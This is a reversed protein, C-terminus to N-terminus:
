RRRERDVILLIGLATLAAGALLHAPHFFDTWGFDAVFHEAWQRVATFAAAAVLLAIAGVGVARGRDHRLSVAAVVGAALGLWPQVVIGAALGVLVAITVTRRIAVPPGTVFPDDMLVPGPGVLAPQRRRGRWGGIIIGLCSLVGLGSVGLGAWVIEQPTWQLKVDVFGDRGPRVVWGNAYGDVIVPEGIDTGNVTARWGETHSQGLVLWVPQGARGQVRLDFSTRGARRVDVSANAAGEPQATAPRRDTSLVLRDLDLGSAAGVATRVIHSGAALQLRRSSDCLQLALSRVGLPDPTGVVRVPVDNGDISLVNRRCTDIPAGARAGQAGPLGLESIAIPMAIPKKTFWDTREVSRVRDFTIRFTRGSLPEFRLAAGGPPVDVSRAPGGDAQITVRTPVSHEGDDVPRLALQDITVPAPTTVELWAGEQPGLHNTWMTKPDGDVASSARMDLDGPLRGSANVVLGPVGGLTADLKADDQSANIRADGSLTFTRAAPLTFRRVIRREEDRAFPELASARLRSMVIDLPNTRAANAGVRRLLAGPMKVVEDLRVGPIRVEALGVGNQDAYGHQRGVNDKEIVLELTRFTRRGGLDVHQGEPRFSDDTLDVSVVKRGDLVVGLRTITRSGNFAQVLDIGSTTVPSTTEVLLRQGGVPGFTGVSWATALDGDFANAPRDGPSYSITNGYATAEVRKVGRQEVTTQDDMTEDPFTPMRNDQSDVRLPKEDVRETYGENDRVTGWRRARKRNTDTLVLRAGRAVADDLVSPRGAIGPGSLLVSGGGLLDAAAADVVGEGDGELVIPRVASRVRVIPLPDRVPVVGVPPRVMSSREAFYVEDHMPLKPSAKNERRPGFTVPTGFGRLGPSFLGWVQSPRATRYREYELDGRLVVDGVGMLRAVPSIATPDLIGEQIRHDLAILLDASPETGFPILERAVWPRDMLGPTIPDVSNGWRYTAFDSGPIELVRTSGGRQDLWRAAQTWYSPIREPRRLNKAVFGGTWLAPNAVAAVLMTAIAVRTAVQPRRRALAAVGAAILMAQGLVVLPIVRATSRLALGVTSSTAFRKFVAGIPSPHQYPYAGVAIWTGIGILAVSFARYRWRVCFASVFAAIPLVFGVAILWAQETFTSGPEIWAGVKDTGYFFWYGLNRLVESALSTRAVTEVTETYRLVDLGWGSQVVLGGIWWANTAVTLVGIRIVTAIARRGSVEGHIRWAAVIWLVPGLGALVLATANIGGATAVVLAFLAPHWWSGTRLSRHALGVLWPLAAWPLLLVSIRSVYDLVYPSLLYVVAATTWALRSRPGIVRGLYLIGAGALFLLTGMWLRQAIWDPVGLRDFVWFWPGMPWLYGINQHTVTAMGVNPDWLYAARSLLRGPDLYLYAKTDAAVQGPATLLLPVYSIAALLGLEREHERM